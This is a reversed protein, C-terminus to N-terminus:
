LAKFSFLWHIFFLIRVKGIFFFHQYVWVFCLNYWVSKEMRQRSLLFLLLHWVTPIIFACLIPLIDRSDSYGRCNLVESYISRWFNVKDTLCVNRSLTSNLWWHSWEEPSFFFFIPCWARQYFASFLSLHVLLYSRTNYCTTDM